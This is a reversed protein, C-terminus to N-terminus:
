LTLFDINARVCQGTLHDVASAKVETDGFKMHVTIERRQPPISDEEAGSSPSPPPPLPPPPSGLDLHLTGVRRVGDETVFKADHRETAYLHLIVTSQAPTAPTYSRVVVDGVAVSEDVAVFRDLVDACWEAGAAVVRKDPPHMGHQFRNLVGVGYTLRSRRVTVVGPDLGFQVAGRLIALGMGQPIIVNVRHGFVDRIHKQLLESEAFGGVLFMYQLPGVEPASLVAEIAQTINALTPLFLQRMTEQEVRLMGQASWRVGLHQHKKIAWEVDKGRFKRFLDIFSFPLAINLPNERFPSANRKRSEFAIMLDVFAAPRQRRFASLFDSGFLTELLREFEVDVGTSGYPGGSAKHLEKLHGTLRDTMQHVTIDVTGGGCDVVAYVTDRDLEPMASVPSPSASDQPPSLSPPSVSSHRPHRLDPPRDPLLQHRRLRRCYIAAAEPELAILLQEPRASSGMGAQYAATRMFQKAPHSWIAPVTIVWRVDEELVTVGAQDSLERLAHDRFYRLAHGFIQLAPVKRGNAAELMTDRSLTLDAHLSMKFRDFYLWRKAEKPDLDHYTDRATFGLSHFRGEPTLLVITPTKQNQVGPDGGEWKKMMHVNEPDRTFSFAYGSYTTGFDIAVVVFHAPPRAELTGVGGMDRPEGVVAVGVEGELVAAGRCSQLSPSRSHTAPGSSSLDHLHAPPVHGKHAHAHPPSPPPSQTDDGTLTGCPSTAGSEHGSDSDAPALPGGEELPARRGPAPNLSSRRAPPPPKASTKSSTTPTYHVGPYYARMFVSSAPAPRTDVYVEEILNLNEMGGEHPARAPPADEGGVTVITRGGSVGVSPKAHVPPREPRPDGGPVGGKAADAGPVAPTRLVTRSAPPRPETDRQGPSHGGRPVGAAHPPTPPLSPLRSLRAPAASAPTRARARAADCQAPSSEGSSGSQGALSADLAHLAAAEAEGVSGRAPTHSRLRAMRPPSSGPRRFYVGAARLEEELRSPSAPPKARLGDYEPSASRPPSHPPPRPPPVGPPQALSSGLMTSCFGRFNDRILTTPASVGGPFCEYDVEDDQTIYSSGNTAYILHDDAHRQASDHKHHHDDSAGSLSSGRGDSTHYDSTSAAGGGGDLESGEETDVDSAEDGGALLARRGDRMTKWDSRPAPTPAPTPPAPPPLSALLSPDQKAPPPPSPTPDVSSEQLSNFLEEPIDHYSKICAAVVRPAAQVGADGPVVMADGHPEHGAAASTEHCESARADPVPTAHDCRCPPLPSCPATRRSREADRDSSLGSAPAPHGPGGGGGGGEGGGAGDRAEGGVSSARGGPGGKAGGGAIEREEGAGVPTADGAPPRPVNKLIGVITGHRRRAVVPRVRKITIAEPAMAEGEPASDYGPRKGPAPSEDDGGAPADALDAWRPFSSLTNRYRRLPRPKPSARLPNRFTYTVLTDPTLEAEQRGAGEGEGEGSTAKVQLPSSEFFAKARSVKGSLGEFEDKAATSIYTTLVVSAPRPAARSERASASRFREFPRPLDPSLCPPSASPPSRLTDRALLSPRTSPPTSPPLSSPAEAANPEAAERSESRAELAAEEPTVAQKIWSDRLLIRRPVTAAVGPPLSTYSGVM